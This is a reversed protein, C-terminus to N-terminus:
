IEDDDDEEEFARGSASKAASHEHSLISSLTKKLSKIAARTM